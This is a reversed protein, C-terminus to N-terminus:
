ADPDPDPNPQPSLNKILQQLGIGRIQADTLQRALMTLQVRLRTNESREDELDNLLETVHGRLEEERMVADIEDFGPEPRGVHPPPPATLQLLFLDQIEEDSLNQLLSKMEDNEEPSTDPNTM